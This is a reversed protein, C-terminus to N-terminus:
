RAALPVDPHEATPHYSPEGPSFVESSGRCAFLTGLLLGLFTVLMPAFAGRFFVQATVAYLVCILVAKRLDTTSALRVWFWEILLGVLISGLIVGLVGFNAYMEGFEPFAVGNDLPDFVHTVRKIEGTPKAHWLARPVPFVLTELYSSGNLYSVQEPITQVLGALPAFLESGGGVAEFTINHLSVHRQGAQQRFIGVVASFALVAVLAIV